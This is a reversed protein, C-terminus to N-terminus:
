QEMSFFIEISPAGLHTSTYSYYALVKSADVSDVTGSRDVDACKSQSANFSGTKGTSTLAYEALILSADVSDVISDNNVDGKNKIYEGELAEFKVKRPTAWNRATSKDYGKIVGNYISEGTKFDYSNCITFQENKNIINAEGNYITVSALNGCNSFAGECVTNVSEDCVINEIYPNGAFAYPEITQIYSPVTFDKDKRGAPYVALDAMDSRYIVGDVIHYNGISNMGEFKELSICGEFAKQGIVDPSCGFKFSNLNKTGAFACYGINSVNAGLVVAELDDDNLFANDSITTVPLDNIEDAVTISNSSNYHTRGIVSYHDFMYEYYIEDTLTTLSNMCIARGHPTLEFHDYKEKEQVYQTESVEKGNIKYVIEVGEIDKNMTNDTFSEERIFRGKELRFYTLSRVGMHVDNHVLYHANPDTFAIGCTGLEVPDSLNGEYYSYVTCTGSRFNNQSIFLEPNGDHDIDYIEFCSPEQSEVNFNYDPNTYFSNLVYSYAAQWSTFSMQPFSDAANVNSLPIAASLLVAATVAATTQKIKM